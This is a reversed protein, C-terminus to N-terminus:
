NSSTKMKKKKNIVIAGYYKQTIINMSVLSDTNASLFPCLFNKKYSHCTNIITISNIRFM